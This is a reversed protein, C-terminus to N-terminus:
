LAILEVTIPGDVYEVGREFTSIDVQDKRIGFLEVELKLTFRDGIQVADPVEIKGAGAIHAIDVKM